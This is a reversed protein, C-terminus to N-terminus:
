KDGRRVKTILRNYESDGVIQKWWGEYEKESIQAGTIPHRYNDLMSHSFRNLCVINSADYKLKPARSRRIVHAHDIIKAFYGANNDLAQLELFDFFAIIPLQELLYNYLGFAITYLM